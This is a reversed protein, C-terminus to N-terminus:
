SVSIMALRNLPSNHYFYYLGQLLCVTTKNDLPIKRTSDKFALELKHSFCHVAVMAPQEKRLLAGVGNNKGLMVSAGDSGMGVLKPKTVEWSLGITEFSRKIAGVIHM